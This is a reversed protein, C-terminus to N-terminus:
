MRSSLAPFCYLFPPDSIFPHYNTIKPDAFYKTIYQLQSVVRTKVDSQRDGPLRLMGVCM